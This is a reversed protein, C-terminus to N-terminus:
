GTEQALALTSTLSSLAALAAIGISAPTKINKMPNETRPAPVNVVTNVAVGIPYNAPAVATVTPPTPPTPVPVPVPTVVPPTDFGFLPSRDSGGGCATVLAGVLLLAVWPRLSAPCDFLKM